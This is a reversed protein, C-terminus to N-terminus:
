ILSHTWSLIRAENHNITHLSGSLQHIFHAAKILMSLMTMMALCLACKIIKGPNMAFFLCITKKKKKTLPHRNRTWTRTM